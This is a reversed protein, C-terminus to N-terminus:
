LDSYFYESIKANDEEEYPDSCLICINDKWAIDADDICYQNGTNSNIVTVEKDMYDTYSQLIKILEQLTM